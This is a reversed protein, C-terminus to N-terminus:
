AKFSAWFFKEKCTFKRKVSYGLCYSSLFAYTNHCFYKSFPNSSIAPCQCYRKNSKAPEEWDKQCFCVNSDYPLRLDSRYRKRSLCRPIKEYQYKPQPKKFSVNGIKNPPHVKKSKRCVHVKLKLRQKKSTCTKSHGLIQKNKIYHLIAFVYKYSAMLSAMCGYEGTLTSGDKHIGVWVSYSNENVRTQPVVVGKVFCRKLISIIPKLKVSMVQSFVIFKERREISGKSIDNQM